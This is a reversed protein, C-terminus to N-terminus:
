AWGLHSCVHPPFQYVAVYTEGAPRPGVNPLCAFSTLIVIVHRSMAGHHSISSCGNNPTSYIYRVIYLQRFRTFEYKDSNNQGLILHM